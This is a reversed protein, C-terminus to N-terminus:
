VQYKIRKTAITFPLTKKIESESKEDNTYLLSLSKQANIKYGALKGSENILELLKRTADKPNEIYLIMDDAFLSLKVEEKRIQIEKIEKEGRIATALVELVVNFLLPSLPCGQRTGSRLPFPKLKEGNLVINATPKDYIAKIINLYMGEIGVKQLTKIMFPYQIKNFAKEADISTIMHNKNKLKNIHHLVNISKCINFFGQLGPIFGVQDHHIIRKIQQQMRKALIKKCIKAGINM